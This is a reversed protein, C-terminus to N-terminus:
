QATVEVKPFHDPRVDAPWTVAGRPWQNEVEKIGLEKGLRFRV